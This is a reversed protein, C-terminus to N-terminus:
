KGMKKRELYYEMFKKGYLTKAVRPTMTKQITDLFKFNIDYIEALTVYPAVEADPHNVAFNATYLYKSRKIADQKKQIEEIEKSNKNKLAEFRKTILDLDKDVYRSIVKTYEDYLEQNKSGTIKVDATFFDLSTEINMKGPEAFFPINNDLSNTVGRDLFLYLMEPSDLDFESKFNSDGSITISDIPILITDKIRQIYLKGEKLGKINGTLVFNKTSPAEEKCSIIFIVIILSLVIKRM